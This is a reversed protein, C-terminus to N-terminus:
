QQQQQIIELQERYSNKLNEGKSFSKDFGVEFILKEDDVKQVTDLYVSVNMQQIENGKFVGKVPTCDGYNRGVALRIHYDNVICNNTSDLGIWGFSPIFVEAWAHTAGAGLIGDRAYVYGSVYRTPINALRCLQIYVNTFDQCVGSKIKWVQDITTFVNTVGKKYTLNEYVYHCLKRALSLVSDNKEKLNNVVNLAEDKRLLGHDVMVCTLKNGLIKHLVAALVTSDVGGSLALLVEEDKIETSVLANIQQLIDDSSWNQEIDCIELFNKIIRIGSKTHTVEPHFQLGFYKKAINEYAAIPSNNSVATIVYGNPLSEVKDGHSMWVNSSEDLNKFLVSDLKIDIKANGFERKGENIIKGEEQHALVQMGYCIGLIPKKTDFIHQHIFPNGEINSSEPGGSLIFGKVDSVDPIEDWPCVESYVSLERLRRAILQTYQSGFDIVLIKEM